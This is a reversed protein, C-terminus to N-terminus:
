IGWYNDDEDYPKPEEKVLVETDVTTEAIWGLFEGDEPMETYTDDYDDDTQIKDDTRVIDGNDDEEEELEDDSDEEGESMVKKKVPEEKVVVVENVEKKLITSLLSVDKVLVTDEEVEIVDCPTTSGSMIGLEHLYELYMTYRNDLKGIDHKKYYKDRQIADKEYKFIDNLPCLIVDWKRSVLNTDSFDAISFINLPLKGTKIILDLDSLEL